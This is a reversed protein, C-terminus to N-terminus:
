LRNRRCRVCARMECERCSLIFRDLFNHCSECQHPGWVTTWKPHTCEHNERLHEAMNEVVAQPAGEEVRERAAAFLLQEDWQLCECSKWPESCVYCFEARCLCTMHFCGHSLEVMRQCGPCRQWGQEKCFGVMEEIEEDEECPILRSHAEKKCSTCVAAPCYPEICAVIRREGDASGLFASCTPRPCYLRNLTTHEELKVLFKTQLNASLHRSISSFPILTRCCQPPMLSEDKTAHEFLERICPICYTDNCPVRVFDTVNDTCIVCPVIRRPPLAPRSQRLAQQSSEARDNNQSTASSAWGSVVLASRPIQEHVDIIEWDPDRREFERAVDRDRLASEEETM